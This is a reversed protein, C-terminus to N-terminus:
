RCPRFAPLVTSTNLLEHQRRHETTQQIAATKDRLTGETKVRKKDSQFTVQQPPVHGDEDPQQSQDKAMSSISRIAWFNRIFEKELLHIM